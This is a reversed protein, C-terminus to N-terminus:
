ENSEGEYHFNRLDSDALVEHIGRELLRDAIQNKIVLENSKTLLEETEIMVGFSIEMSYIHSM